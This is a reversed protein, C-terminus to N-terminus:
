TPDAVTITNVSHMTGVSKLKWRNANKLTRM